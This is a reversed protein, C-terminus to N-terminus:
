VLGHDYRNDDYPVLNCVCLEFVLKLEVLVKIFSLRCAYVAGGLLMKKRCQDDQM